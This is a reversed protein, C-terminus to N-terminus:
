GVGLSGSWNYPLEGADIMTLGAAVSANCDSGSAQLFVGAVRFDGSFSEGNALEIYNSGTNAIPGGPFGVGYSSFGFKLPASASAPSVTNKITIFKSVKPFGIYTPPDGSTLPISSSLFPISSAQYSGVNGLGSRYRIMLRDPNDMPNNPM